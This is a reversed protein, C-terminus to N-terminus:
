NTGQKRINATASNLVINNAFINYDQNSDDENIGYRHKATEDSHIQCGKIVNYTTNGSGGAELFFGDYTNTDGQSNDAVICGIFTNKQAGKLHFGHRDNNRAVCAVFVNKVPTGDVDEILWGDMDCISGKCSIFRNNKSDGTIWYGYSGSGGSISESHLDIFTCDDADRIVWGKTSLEVATDCIFNAHGTINAGWGYSNFCAVNEVINDGGGLYLLGADAGGTQDAGDLVLNSVRNSWTEISLLRALNEGAGMKFITAGRYGDVVIGRWFVGQINVGYKSTVKIFDSKIEYVGPKIYVTGGRDPLQDLAYQIVTRADTDQKVVVGSSGNRCYYNTGDTWVVFAAPIEPHFGVNNIGGLADVWEQIRSHTIKRGATWTNFADPM